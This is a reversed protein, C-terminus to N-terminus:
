KDIGLGQEAAALEDPTGSTTFAKSHANEALSLRVTYPLAGIVINTSGVLGWGIQSMQDRWFQADPLTYGCLKRAFEFYGHGPTGTTSKVVLSSLAGSGAQFDEQMIQGLITSLEVGGSFMGLAKALSVYTIRHRISQCFKLIGRVEARTIAQSVAKEQAALADSVVLDRIPRM